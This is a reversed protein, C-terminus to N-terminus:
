EGFEAARQGLDLVAASLPDGREASRTMHDSGAPRTPSSAAQVRNNMDLKGLIRSVHAKVTGEQMYLSSGVEANSMGRAVTVLVM